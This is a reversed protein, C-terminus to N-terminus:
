TGQLLGLYQVNLALRELREVKPAQGVSKGSM